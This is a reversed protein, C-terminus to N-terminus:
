FPLNDDDPKGVKSALEAVYEEKEKTTKAAMIQAIEDFSVMNDKEIDGAFFAYKTKLNFMSIEHKDKASEPRAALPLERYRIFREHRHRLIKERYKGIACSCVAMSEVLDGRKDLSVFPVYGGSVQEGNVFGECLLCAVKMTKGNVCPIEHVNAAETPKQMLIGPPLKGTKKDTKIINAKDAFGM